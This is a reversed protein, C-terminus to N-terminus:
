RESMLFLGNQIYFIIVFKHSGSNLYMKYTRAQPQAASGEGAHFIIKGFTWAADVISSARCINMKRASHRRAPSSRRRFNFPHTNKASIKTDLAFNKVSAHPFPPLSLFAYRSADRPFYKMTKKTPGQV